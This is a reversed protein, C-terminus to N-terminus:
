EVRVPADQERMQQHEAIDVRALARTDRLPHHILEEGTQLPFHVFGGRAFTQAAARDDGALLVQRIDLTPTVRIRPQQRVPAHFRVVDSEPGVCDRLGILGYPLGSYRAASPSTIGM